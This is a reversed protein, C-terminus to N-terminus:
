ENLLIIIAYSIIGFWYFVAAFNYIENENKVLFKIPQKDINKANYKKHFDVLGKIM